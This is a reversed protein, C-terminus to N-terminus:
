GTTLTKEVEGVVYRAVELAREAQSRSFSESPRMLGANPYRATVYYQSVEAIRDRIDDPLPLVDRIMGYLVTLDHLHPPRVRKVGILVAKLVKEIAQQSLYCSLSFDGYELSREARRLDVRGEEFWDIAEERVVRVV